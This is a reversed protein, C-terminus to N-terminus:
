LGVRQRLDRVLPTERGQTRAAQRPLAGSELYAVNMGGVIAADARNLGRFTRVDSQDRGQAAVGADVIVTEDFRGVPLHLTPAHEVEDRHHVCTVALIAHAIM